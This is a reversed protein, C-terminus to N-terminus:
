IFRAYGLGASEKGVIQAEDRLMSWDKLAGILHYV